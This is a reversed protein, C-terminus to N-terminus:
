QPPDLLLQAPCKTYIYTCTGIVDYYLALRESSCGTIAGLAPSCDVNGPHAHLDQVKCVDSSAAIRLTGRQSVLLCAM